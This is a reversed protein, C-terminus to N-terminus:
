KSHAPLAVPGSIKHFVLPIQIFAYSYPRTSIDKLLVVPFHDANSHVSLFAM